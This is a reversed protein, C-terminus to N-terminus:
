LKILEFHFPLFQGVNDAVFVKKDGTWMWIKIPSGQRTQIDSIVQLCAACPVLLEPVEYNTSRAFVAIETVKNNELNKACEFLAVREACLGSPFSANEQNSGLVYAGNQLRVSCGVYFQSYPAYAQDAAEAAKEVLVKSESALKDYELEDIKVSVEM